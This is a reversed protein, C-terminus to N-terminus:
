EGRKKSTVYGAAALAAGIGATAMVAAAAADGTAPIVEPKPEEPAPPEAPKTYTNHFVPAGNEGYSWDSADLSGTQTNDVVNVHVTFVTDDYTITSDDGKVEAIEYDHAGPETYEVKEFAVTGDADNTATDIVKGNERLEFTFEGDKLDRGDLVKAAEFTIGTNAATYTNTFTVGGDVAQPMEWTVKLTGNGQDEAKATVNYGTTDYDVGPKGGDVESLVYNYTGPKTFTIGGFSVTGDAANTATIVTDDGKLQFEFDGEALVRDTNTSKFDKTITFGGEGTLSSTTETVDYVNTFKFDAGDVKQSTVEAKLNGGGLDTVTVQVTKTGQENTVGNVSGSESITYNFVQTRGATYTEIGEDTTAEDTTAEDAAAEADANTTAPKNGFTNEM